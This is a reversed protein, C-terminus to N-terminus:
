VVWRIRGAHGLRLRRGPSVRHGRDAAPRTGADPSQVMGRPGSGPHGGYRLVPERTAPIIAPAIPSPAARRDRHLGHGARPGHGDHDAFGAFDHFGALDACDLRHAQRAGSTRSPARARGGVDCRSGRRPGADPELPARSGPTRRGGAAPATRPPAADPSAEDECPAGGVDRRLPPAPWVGRRAFPALDRGLAEASPHRLPPDFALARDVAGTLGPPLGPHAGALPRAPHCAVHHLLANPSGGPHAKEGSLMEFLIAGIAYVDIRGDVHEEGRAQEPAMYAPTGVIAGTRTPAEGSDVQELKAVGFDLVKVLDTGDERRCVFLNEPKLDRHVIGATHAAAMWQLSAARDGHGARRAGGRPSCGLEPGRDLRGARQHEQCGPAEPFNLTIFAQDIGQQAQLNRYGGSTQSYGDVVVAMMARSNGYSFNLQSWPGTITNTYQWDIASAGRVRPTSHLQTGSTVPSPAQMTILTSPTPPGFSVRM